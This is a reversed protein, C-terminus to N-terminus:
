EHRIAQLPDVMTARRAPIYCALTAALILVGSGCAFAEADIPRVGFLLTELVRTSAFAGALGLAVGAATLGLGEKLIMSLVDGREAGLAMRIGIEHTRRAVSYNVTGYVGVASVLLALVAFGGVLLLYFRPVAVEAALMNDLTDFDGIIMRKNWSRMEKRIAGALSLPPVVTRVLVQVGNGWDAQRNPFYIAPMPDGAVGFGRVNGAVGIVTAWDSTGWRVHKGIPDEKQFDRAALAGNIVAVKPATAGDAATFFRGREITMGAARLFGPTAVMYGTLWPKGERHPRGEIQFSDDSSSAAANQPFATAAGAAQVGPLARLRELLDEIHPNVGWPLEAALVGEPRFGLPVSVRMLFSRLLVGGGILLTVALGIQVTALVSRGRNKGFEGGGPTGPGEKLWKGLDRKSAGLAPALGFLLGTAIAAGLAYPLVAGDIAVEHIRPLHVPDLAVFARVLWYAAAVGFTGGALALLVSESLLCRAVRWRGAGLALRLALERHRATSRVLLLNAVNACAILLVCGVAGMLVLLAPRAEGVIQETLPVVNAGIGENEQPHALKLRAAIARMESLAHGPTVGDKLKGIVRFSHGITLSKPNDTAIPLWLESEAPFVFGRPMIGAVTFVERDFRAQKGVLNRDGGLRQWLGYSLVIVPVASARQEEPLFTRGLAPQVGLTSFFDGSVRSGKVISPEGGVNMRVGDSIFVAMRAFSRSQEQWDRFNQYSVVVRDEDLAERTEWVMMLRGPERFPLPRLLVANVVSFVATSAGIGLGMTLVAVTTFGPYKRLGRVAYKVDAAWAEAWAWGWARRSDEKFLATNGFTRRAAAAGLEASKMDLHFRMEEELDRDFQRRRFQFLLRRWWEGLWEM